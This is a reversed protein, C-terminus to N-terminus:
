SSTKENEDDLISDDWPAGSALLELARDIKKSPLKSVSLPTGFQEGNRFLVFAPVAQVSLYRGLAKGMEGSAEAKVFSVNSNDNEQSMRAMRTYMPNITRCTKCFKASLFMICDMQNEVIESRMGEVGLVNLVYPNNQIAQNKVSSSKKAEKLGFDGIEDVDDQDVVARAQEQRYPSESIMFEDEEGLEERVPLGYRVTGTGSSDRPWSTSEWFDTLTWGRVAKSKKSAIKERQKEAFIVGNGLLKELTNGISKPPLLPQSDKSQALFALNGVKESYMDTKGPGGFIGENAVMEQSHTYTSIYKHCNHRTKLLQLVSPGFSIGIDYFDGDDDLPDDMSLSNSRENGLTDVLADFHGLHACFGTGSSGVSPKVVQVADFFSPVHANARVHDSHRWWSWMEESVQEWM